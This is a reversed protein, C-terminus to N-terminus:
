SSKFIKGLGMWNDLIFRLIPDELEHLLKHPIEFGYHDELIHGVEHIFSRLLEDRPQKQALYMTKISPDTLGLCGEVIKRCFKVEWCDDGVHLTNPYDKQGGLKM